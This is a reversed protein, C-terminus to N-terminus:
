RPPRERPASRLRVARLQQDETEVALGNSVYFITQCLEPPISADWVDPRGDPQEGLAGYTLGVGIENLWVVVPKGEYHYAM